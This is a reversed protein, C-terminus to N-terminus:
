YNDFLVLASSKIDNLHDTTNKKGFGYKSLLVNSIERLNQMSVNLYPKNKMLEKVKERKNQDENTFLYIVLNSDILEREISKM